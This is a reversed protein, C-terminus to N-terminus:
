SIFMKALESGVDLFANEPDLQIRVANMATARDKLKTNAIAHGQHCLKGWHYTFPIKRDSFCQKIRRLHTESLLICHVEHM